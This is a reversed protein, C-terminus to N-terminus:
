DTTEIPDCAVMLRWELEKKYEKMTELSSTQSPPDFLIKVTLYVYTRVTNLREDSVFESWESTNDTIEFGGNPGVGIQNLVAFASNIHMIIDTDFHTYDDSIGLLKKISTLISDDSSPTPTPEDQTEPTDPTEPDETNENELIENEDM